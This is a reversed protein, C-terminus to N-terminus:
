RRSSSSSRSFPRGGNHNITCISSGRGVALAGVVANMESQSLTELTVNSVDQSAPLHLCADEVYMISGDEVEM